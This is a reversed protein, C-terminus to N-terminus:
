IHQTFLGRLSPRPRYWSRISSSQYVTGGARHIRVNLEDDQNRALEEDFLGLEVLRTKRWCGYTVTDVYGDYNPDHFRAGGTSFRSHFALAIAEQRYGEARTRAPGGVNDAGTGRLVEVCRKVYDPAYETHVDMRIIIDGKAARVARNLG